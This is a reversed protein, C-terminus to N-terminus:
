SSLSDDFSAWDYKVTLSYVSLDEKSYDLTDQELKTIIPNYISWKEVTGGEANLQEIEFAIPSNSLQARANKQTTLAQAMLKKSLFTMTGQESIGTGVTAANTIIDPYGAEVIVNALKSLVTNSVDDIFELKVENWKVNGPFNFERGGFKHQVTAVEFTPKTATKLYFHPITQEGDAFALNLRFRFARKPEFNNETWFAM